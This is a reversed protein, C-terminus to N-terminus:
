TAHYRGSRTDWHLDARGPRGVDRFKIKQVHIEVPGDNEIDTRHVTIGNDAKNRWHASGSISYLTPTEYEDSDRRKNMKFPHAVIWVHVRNVRAFRRLKSLFDSVYETETMGDPRKHELENYPDIILGNVGHRRVLKLTLGLVKDLSVDEGADIFWLRNEFWEVEKMMDGWSLRPTPGENVPFGSHKAILKAQHRESPFNEPSYIAFKWGHGDMLNIALADLWESKGSSPMGTVVTLQCEKVTYFQDVNVWGTSLGGGLGHQYLSHLRNVLDMQTIIGELPVFKAELVIDRLVDPGYTQLVDNADKCDDPWAVLSCREAGLRRILEMQLVRGPDDNDVALVFNTVGELKDYCNDIFEFKSAFNKTGPAPAGEPVSLVHEFGVERIALADCEGEVIQVTKAEPTITQMGFFVKYGGKVQQFLKKDRNVPRSKINVVEGDMYFPFQLAVLEDKVAGFFVPRCTVQMQDVTEASIGRADFYKRMARIDDPEMSLTYHPKTPPPEPQYSKESQGRLGGDWGCHHCKWVGRRVNVSLCKVYQKKRDKSCKPCHAYVEGPGAGDKIEIGYDAFTKM